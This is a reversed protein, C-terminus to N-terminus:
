FMRDQINTYNKDKKKHNLGKEDSYDCDYINIYLYDTIKYTSMHERVVSISRVSVTLDDLHNRAKVKEKKLSNLEDLSMNKDYKKNMLQKIGSIIDMNNEYTVKPIVTISDINRFLRKVELKEMDFSNMKKLYDIVQILEEYYKSNKLKETTYLNDILQIKQEESVIGDIENELLSEKSLDFIKKDIVTGVGSCKKDGGDFVYANYGDDTWDRDRYCRGLRQFLSNLDSLETILIDFDIDLSAEVVSTAIWIGTDITNKNGFELIEKEKEKRDKKIFGSHFLNIKNVEGISSKLEEYIKQAEKVTNCIVLIKNNDYREEIFSSNIKDKMVKLSHRIRNNTFPKPQLFEVNEKSLFDTFIQPLTATVVAFKGGVKDIYSLGVILYALLDASYMQIEDIVVKSYSLTALKSEFGKYRYVFDFIQDITCITLPLSLQKTKNYYEFIDTDDEEMDLYEKLMDSHLLGLKNSYDNIIIKDKVRKYIENIATRLPLTFFGKNNGIWLLAGETKGMGTQAVLIINKETNKKMYIQLENWNADPHKKRFEELMNNELKEILFNNEEEVPIGSSAAYDLRNLLGKTMVYELFLYFDEKENIRDFSFYKRSLKKVVLNDIKDYKFNEAELKLEEIEKKLQDREFNFHRDHHYAISHALIKIHEQSYTNRLVKTNIFSLSLIGHPIEDVHKKVKNIKDQFKKNMKGLDHYICSLYLIDWNIKLWPYMTKLINYNDILKDTHEVITEKPNSKALYNNM